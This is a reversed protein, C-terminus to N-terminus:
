IASRNENFNLRSSFFKIEISLAENFAVLLSFECKTEVIFLLLLIIFFLPSLSLSHLSKRANATCFLRVNCTLKYFLIYIIYGYQTM